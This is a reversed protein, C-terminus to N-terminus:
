PLSTQGSVEEVKDPLCFPDLGTRNCFSEVCRRAENEDLSGDGDVDAEKFAAVCAIRRAVKDDLLSKAWHIGDPQM